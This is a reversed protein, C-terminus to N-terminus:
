PLLGYATLQSVSSVFVKGNAVLPVSFKTAVDMQDRTGAQDSSYFTTALNSPDYAKLVGPAATSCTLSADCDGNRQIAWLIGNTGNNASIAMTAGPYNFLDVTRSSASTPLTGSSLTFAQLNDRIPSFYVTGNFFVPGSYNGPEPTGFPFINVLSQVIQSDDNPNFGGMRDRDVLYMTNNKGASVIMHPHAGPQDPLLLPGAAGLDFNAVSITAQDHPTFFDVITGTPSMKIFSDGYNVRNNDSTDFSGNGTIFYINGSADAAPGGNAQWLGGGEGTATLNVAVTQQLTAANYGLLWGHYPQVDGHSGFGIYVVGNNLLLAARQNERLPDFGTAVLVVPGGFKEAGSTIDLAHLRQVYATEEKTKAVVYLTGTTQDIVPTGTIGIEPSIDCCEGTDDAPVTTVGTGLFTIQWLPTSSLGDADLAYVSDHETAVYVVNHLTGQGLINVSSVYLPSAISLGDLTYSFLKGFTTQNVNAPTLVTENLNRGTRFNDNHHTFTGSYNTVYV